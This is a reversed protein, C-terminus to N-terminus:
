CESKEDQKKDLDEATRDIFGFPWFSYKLFLMYSILVFVHSCNSVVKILLHTSQLTGNQSLLLCVTLVISQRLTTASGLGSSNCSASISRYVFLRTWGILPFYLRERGM